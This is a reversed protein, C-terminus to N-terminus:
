IFANYRDIEGHGHGHGHGHGQGQSLQPTPYHQKIGPKAQCHPHAPPSSSFLYQLLHDYPTAVEIVHNQLTRAADQIDLTHRLERGYLVGLM